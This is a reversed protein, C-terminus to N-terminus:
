PPYDQLSLTEGGARTVLAALVCLNTSGSLLHVSGDAYVVNAGATHFGYVENDSSCNVACSGQICGDTGTSGDISFAQNPDAWSGEKQKHPPNCSAGQDPSYKGAYCYLFPRGADEAVLITQSTGDLIEAVATTNDEVLAGVIRADGSLISNPLNGCPIAVFTKLGSVSSYDGSARPTTYSGPESPSSDMRPTWPVSPCIYFKLPVAVAKANSPDDWNVTYNYENAINQEEMYPLVLASWSVEPTATARGVPFYTMANEYNLLGLGIQKMNNTCTTRNAAERVKQVAPLLLGILIAIIAIVVLLEILTFARNRVTKALPM